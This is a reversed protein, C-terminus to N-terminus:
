EGAYGGGECRRRRAPWKGSGLTSPSRRSPASGNRPLKLAGSARRRRPNNKKETSHGIPKDEPLCIPAQGARRNRAIHRQQRESTGGWAGHDIRNRLAYELCRVAVTCKACYRRAVQIGADDSPFLVEASLDRCRAKAMWPVSFEFDVASPAAGRRELALVRREEKGEM